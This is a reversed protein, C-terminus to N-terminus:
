LRISCSKHFEIRLDSTPTIKVIKLVGTRRDTQRDAQRSGGGLPCKYVVEYTFFLPMQAGNTANHVVKPTICWPAYNCTLKKACRHKHM